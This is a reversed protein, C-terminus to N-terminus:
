SETTMDNYLDYVDDEDSPKIYNELTTTLQKHGLLKQIKSVEKGREKMVTAISARYAHPYVPVGLYEGFKDCWANFTSSDVRRIVGGYQNVFLDDLDDTRTALYLELYKDVMVAPILFARQEGNRGKGKCRKISTKYMGNKLNEKSFDSRKMQLVEGKRAGTGFSIAVYLCKKWDQKEELWDMLKNVQEDTLYTKERIKELSPAPIKLILNRYNEFKSDEDALINECFNSLSSVTSRLTRVRAPSLEQDEVLYSLWSMFDRKKLEAFFRNDKEKYVWQFFLKLNHLYSEKTQPSKDTASIYEMYEKVLKKNDKNVNNIWDSEADYHHMAIQRKAM